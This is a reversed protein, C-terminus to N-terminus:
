SPCPSRALHGAASSPWSLSAKRAKTCPGAPWCGTGPDATEILAWDYLRPRKSGDACSLREWAGAPVLAALEDARFSGAGATVAESCAVAMTLAEDVVGLM